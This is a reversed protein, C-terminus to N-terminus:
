TNYLEHRTTTSLVSSSISKSYIHASNTFCTFSSYNSTTNLLSTSPPSQRLISTAQVPRVNHTQTTNINHPQTINALSVQSQTLTPQNSSAFQLQTNTNLHSPSQSNNLNEIQTIFLTQLIHIHVLLHLELHTSFLHLFFFKFFQLHSYCFIYTFESSNKKDNSQTLLVLLIKITRLPFFESLDSSLVSLELSISFTDINQAKPNNINTAYSFYPRVRDPLSSSSGICISDFALMNIYHSFYDTRNYNQPQPNTPNAFFPMLERSTFHQLFIVFADRDNTNWMLQYNKLLFFRPFRSKKTKSTKNPGQIFIVSYSINSSIFYFSTRKIGIIPTTKLIFIANLIQSM